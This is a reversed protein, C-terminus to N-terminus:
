GRLGEVPSAGGGGLAAQWASAQLPLPVFLLLILIGRLIRRGPLDSRYLLLAIAVGVPMTLALTGLVLLTTNRLLSLLRPTETWAEWAGPYRVLERVLALLPLGLVIFWVVAVTIRWRRMSNVM